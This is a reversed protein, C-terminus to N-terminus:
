GREGWMEFVRVFSPNKQDGKQNGWRGGDRETVRAQSIAGM